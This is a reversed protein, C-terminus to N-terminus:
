AVLQLRFKACSVTAPKFESSFKVVGAEVSWDILGLDKMKQFGSQIDGSEVLQAMVKKLGQHTHGAEDWMALFRVPYYPPKAERSKRVSEEMFEVLETKM